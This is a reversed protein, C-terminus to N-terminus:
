VIPKARNAATTVANADAATASCATAGSAANEGVALAELTAGAAPTSAAMVVNSRSQAAAMTFFSTAASPRSSASSKLPVLGVACVNVLVTAISSRFDPFYATADM